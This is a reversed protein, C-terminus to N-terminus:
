NLEGETRALKELNPPLNTLFFVSFTLMLATLLMLGFRRLVFKLM